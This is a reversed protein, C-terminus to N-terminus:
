RPRGIGLTELASQALNASEQPSLTLLRAEAARVIEMKKSAGAVVRPRDSARQRRSIEEQERGLAKARRYQQWRELTQQYRHTEWEEPSVQYDPNGLKADIAFMALYSAQLPSMAFNLSDGRQLQTGDESKSLGKGMFRPTLAVSRFRLDLIQHESTRTYSPLALTDSLGNILRVLDGHTVPRGGGSRHEMEAQIVQEEVPARVFAPLTGFLHPQSFVEDALARVSDPDGAEAASAKEEIRLWRSQLAATASTEAHVVRTRSRWILAVIMACVVAILVVTRRNFM